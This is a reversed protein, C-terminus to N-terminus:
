ISFVLNRGSNKARYLALDALKYIESIKSYQNANTMCGISVTCNIPNKDDLFPTNQIKDKIRNAILNAEEKDILPLLIAFEEGGIRALYDNKRLQEKCISVIHILIKDGIPHGYTDNINKFFDIDLMLFSFIEGTQNSNILHRQLIQEIKRRNITSTLPDTTAEKELNNEAQKRNTIDIAVGIFKNHKYKSTSDIAGILEVWNYRNEILIRVDSRFKENKTKIYKNTKILLKKRDDPHIVKLMNRFSFQLNDTKKPTTGFTKSTCWLYKRNLDFEWVSYEIIQQLIDLQKRKASLKDRLVASSILFGATRLLAIQADSWNYERECDDFGLTGWWKNEVFIPITLMSKIHQNELNTKIESPKLESIIMKQYKGDLRSTVMKKYNSENIKTEFRNFAPLGIQIYKKKSAWGFTYDQIVYEDTLKLTQFIWVRSVKTIKGLSELLEDVGDPWGKGNTLNEASRAIATLLKSQINGSQELGINKFQGTNVM